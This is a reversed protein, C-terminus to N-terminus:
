ATPSLVFVPPLRPDFFAILRGEVHVICRDPVSEADSHIEVLPTADTEQLDFAVQISFAPAAHELRDLAEQSTYLYYSEQPESQHLIVHTPKLMEILERGRTIPWEAELLVFTTMVVAQLDMTEERKRM